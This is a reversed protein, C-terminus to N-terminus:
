LLVAGIAIGVLLGAAFLLPKMAGAADPPPPAQPATQGAAATPASTEVVVPVVDIFTLLDPLGTPIGDTDGDNLDIATPQTDDLHFPTQAPAYANGFPLDRLIPVPADTAEEENRVYHELAKGSLSPAEAPQVPELHLKRAPIPVGRRPFMMPPTPARLIHEDIDVRHAEPADTGFADV